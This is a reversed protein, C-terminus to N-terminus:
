LGWNTVIVDDLDLVGRGDLVFLAGLAGGGFAALGSLAVELLTGRRGLNVDIIDIELDVFVECGGAVDVM